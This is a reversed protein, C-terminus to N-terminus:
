RVNATQASTAEAPAVDAHPSSAVAVDEVPPDGLVVVPTDLPDSPDPPSSPVPPEPAPKSVSVAVFGTRPM